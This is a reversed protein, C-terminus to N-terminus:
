AFATIIVPSFLSCVALLTRASLCPATLSVYLSISSYNSVKRWPSHKQQQEQHKDAAAAVTVVWFLALHYFGAREGLFSKPCVPAGLATDTNSTSIPLPPFPTPSSLLCLVLCVRSEGASVCEHRLLFVAWGGFLPCECLSPSPSSLVPQIHKLLCLCAWSRQM